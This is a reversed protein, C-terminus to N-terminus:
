NSNRMLGPREPEGAVGPFTGGLAADWQLHDSDDEEM